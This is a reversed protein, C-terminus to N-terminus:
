IPGVWRWGEMWGSDRRWGLLWDGWGGMVMERSEGVGGCGMRRYGCGVAWGSVLERGGCGLCSGSVM